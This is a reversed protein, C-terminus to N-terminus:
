NARYISEASVSRTSGDTTTIAVEGAPGGVSTADAPTPWWATWRGGDVTAVIPEVGEESLTVATVDAGAFGEAYTLATSGSGHSGASDLVIDAPALQGTPADGVVEWLGAGDGASLCYYVMGQRQYVLSTVAGRSDLNSIAPTGGEGNATGLNTECWSQADTAIPSGPAVSTPVSTWSALQATTLQGSASIAAPLTGGFLHPAVVVAGFAAAGVLMAGVGAAVWTYAARRRAPTATSSALIQALLAERREADDATISSAPASDLSRLQDFIHQTM